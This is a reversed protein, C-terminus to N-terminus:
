DAVPETQLEKRSVGADPPGASETAAMAGVRAEAVAAAPAPVRVLAVTCNDRSGGALAHRVVLAAAGALDEEELAARMLPEPVCESVGDTCLLLVDGARFDFGNLSPAIGDAVGLAQSLVNGKPHHKARNEEEGLVDIAYLHDRTLRRVADGRFQLARSDGVHGIIVEDSHLLAAVVTTGMGSKEGPAAEAVLHHARQLASQLFTVPDEL